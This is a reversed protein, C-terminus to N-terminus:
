LLKNEMPQYVPRDSQTHSYLGWRNQFNEFEVAFGGYHLLFPLPNGNTAQETPDNSTPRLLPFPKLSVGPTFALRKKKLACNRNELYSMVYSELHLRTSMKMKLSFTQGKFGLPKESCFGNKSTLLAAVTQAGASCDVPVSRQAKDSLREEHSVAPLFTFPSKIAYWTHMDSHTFESSHKAGYRQLDAMGFVTSKSTCNRFSFPTHTHISIM